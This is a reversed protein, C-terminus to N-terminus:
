LVLRYRAEDVNDQGTTYRVLRLAQGDRETRLTERIHAYAAHIVDNDPELIAKRTVYAVADVLQLGAHAQSPEFRLGHEFIRNLSAKNNREGFKAVFPHVPEEYWSTPIVLEYPNSGLRPMLLVNLDKEGAALKGPLKGDLIFHSDALDDRWGDDVYRVISKFLAGHILGVLLDAQVYESNNVRSALETRKIHRQYWAEAGEWRGGAQQYQELNARLRVAQAKRHAAIQEDTMARTDTVQGVLSVPGGAVFRCIEDLKEDPLEAAHLEAVGLERQQNIVYHDVKDVFSDPCILAAQVYVDFREAPFAFDGSEDFYFHMAVPHWGRKWEM